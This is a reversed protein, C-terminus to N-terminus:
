RRVGRAAFSGFQRATEYDARVGAHDLGLVGRAAARDAARDWEARISHWVRRLLSGRSSRRLDARLADVPSPAIVYM